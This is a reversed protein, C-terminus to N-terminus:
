KLWKVQTVPGYGKVSRAAIRFVIAPKSTTTDVLADSITSDDINCENVNGCYVRVFEMQEPNQTQLKIAMYVVFEIIDSQASASPEWTLHAGNPIKTIKIKSPAGPYGPLCTKFSSIESFESCGFKNITGVRFRYCQGAEMKIRKYLAANTLDPINDINLQAVKGNDFDSYNIYNQVIHTTTKFIGVACWKEDKEMNKSQVPMTIKQVQLLYYQAYPVSNWNLELTHNMAKVLQVRQPVSSEIEMYWLDKCCIQNNWAKRYGDRGSYIYLRGYIGIASHGARNRPWSEENTSEDVTEWIMQELDLCSLTNSCKWLQDTHISTNNTTYPVWGGFVYMKSGFITSTHLSRPLPPTGEVIPKIWYLSNTDLLCLDGLRCGNMGGYIILFKKDSNKYQYAVASHSERANPRKGFTLPIEWKCPNTKISLTYLDNLYCPLIRRSDDSENALGGFLYIKDDVRTFSHGLRARPGKGNDPLKPKLKKWEWSTAQLEHLEDSYKGYELMGGFTFLRTGDVELGYAACGPPTDGKIKPVCWQNTFTNYVHLDEVIGENGGGFIIMLERICVARHGHRPRPQPGLTSPIKVWSPKRKDM